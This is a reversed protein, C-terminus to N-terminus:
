LRAEPVPFPSLRAAGHGRLAVELAAVLLLALPLLQEFYGVAQAVERPELGMGLVLPPGLDLGYPLHYAQRRAFDHLDDVKGALAEIGQANSFLDWIDALLRPWRALCLFLAPLRPAGLAAQFRSLVQRGEPTPEPPPNLDIMGPAPGFPVEALREKAVPGAGFEEGRLAEGLAAAALLAKPYLYHFGDLTALWGEPLERGALASLGPVQREALSHADEVAKIRLRDASEEFFHTAANPRLQGWAENLLRPWVALALFLDPTLTSRFVGRVEALVERVEEPAERENVLRPAVGERAM